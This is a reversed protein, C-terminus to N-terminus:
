SAAAPESAPAENDAPRETDRGWFARAWERQAARSEWGWSQIDHLLQAYDIPVSKSKLLTVAHRLHQPLDDSHSNLLSAFRKETSEGAPDQAALRAFSAGLNTRENGGAEWSVPHTAFLSAALYFADERRPDRPLWPVVYRHMEAVSGPQQSLGRRLAALAARNGAAVLTQLYQVFRKEQENPPPM